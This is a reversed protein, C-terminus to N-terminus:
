AATCTRSKYIGLCCMRYPISPCRSKLSIDHSCFPLIPRRHRTGGGIATRLTCNKLKQLRRQLNHLHDPQVAGSKRIADLQRMVESKMKECQKELRPERRKMALNYLLNFGIMSLCIAGYIYILMEARM